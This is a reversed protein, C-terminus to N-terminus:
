VVERVRAVGHDPHIAIYSQVDDLIELARRVRERAGGIAMLADSLKVPGELELAQLANRLHERATEM